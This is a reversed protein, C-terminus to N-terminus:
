IMSVIDSKVLVNKRCGQASIHDKVIVITKDNLNSLRVWCEDDDDADADDDDAAAAAADADDDDDDDDSGTMALHLPTDGNIDIIDSRGGPVSNM